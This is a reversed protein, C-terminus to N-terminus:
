AQDLTVGGPDDGVATHDYLHVDQQPYLIVISAEDLATVDLSGKMGKLQRWYYDRDELPSSHWGLFLDSAAQTLRQGIVVRAAYPEYDRKSLYPKLVSSGTEKLQLLLTDDPSEGELLVITCRTGVSGVGGGRLAADVIRFWRLLYRREDPLSDLYQTWARAVAEETLQRLDATIELDQVVERAPVLLPPDSVIRRWSHEQAYDGVWTRQRVIPAPAAAGAPGPGPM